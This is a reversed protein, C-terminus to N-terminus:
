FIAAIEEISRTIVFRKFGEYVPAADVIAAYKGARGNKVLAVHNGIIEIQVLNNGIMAVHYNYGCSLERLGNKIESITYKDTVMIDALLPWNGDPLSEEGKHVNLLHGCDHEHVSDVNLLEDPHTLTFIKGNFSDITDQKFVEEPSRYVKYTAEPDIGGKILDEAETELLDKGKYDQFGTRAIVANKCVLYGEPTEIWNDSLQTGFYGTKAKRNAV